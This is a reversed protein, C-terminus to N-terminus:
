FCPETCFKWLQDAERAPKGLMQKGHFCSWFSILQTPTQLLRFFCTRALQGPFPFLNCHSFIGYLWM